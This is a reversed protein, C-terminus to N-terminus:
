AAVQCSVSALRARLLHRLKKRAKHLQSKSTGASCGLMEAIREHEYGEVDHLIFVTRYGPPLQAIAQELTIRDILSVAPPRLTGPDSLNKLDGDETVEEQRVYRKRLHMLVQNVTLRHLWTTFASAGRFTNLKRFVQIFVEQTLDEADATNGLMRLCLTYVRRRHREYLQEFAGIDGAASRAILEPDTLQIARGKEAM